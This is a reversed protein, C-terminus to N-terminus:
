TTGPLTMALSTAARVDASVRWPPSRFIVAASPSTMTSPALTVWVSMLHLLPTIWTMSLTIMGYGPRGGRSFGHGAGKAPCDATASRGVIGSGQSIGLEMPLGPLPAKRQGPRWGPSTSAKVARSGRLPTKAGWGTLVGRHPQAAEAAPEGTSECPALFSAGIPSKGGVCNDAGLGPRCVGSLDPRKGRSL